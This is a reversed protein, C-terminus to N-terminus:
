LIQLAGGEVTLFKLIAVELAELWAWPEVHSARTASGTVYGHLWAAGLDKRPGHGPSETDWDAVTVGTHNTLTGRDHEM